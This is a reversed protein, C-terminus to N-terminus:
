RLTSSQRTSSNQRVAVVNRVVRSKGLLKGANTDHVRGVARLSESYLVRDIAFFFNLKVAIQNRNRSRAVRAAVHNQEVLVAEQEGAIM